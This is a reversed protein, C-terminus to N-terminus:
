GRLLDDLLKDIGAKQFMVAEFLDEIGVTDPISYLINKDKDLISLFYKNPSPERLETGLKSKKLFDGSHRRVRFYKDQYLALYNTFKRGSAEITGNEPGEWTLKGEQTLEILKAVLQVWKEPTAM